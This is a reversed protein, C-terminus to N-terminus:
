WRGGPLNHCWNNKDRVFRDGEPTDQWFIDVGVVEGIENNEIKNKADIISREFRQNHVVCFKVNSKKFKDLVEEMENMDMVLPKEVLVHKNRFFAMIIQEKHLTPPTCLDILEISPDLLLDEYNSYFKEVRYKNQFGRGAKENIDCVAALNAEPINQYSEVHVNAVGGCGVLAVNVHKNNM